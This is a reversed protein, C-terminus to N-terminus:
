KFEGERVWVNLGIKITGDIPPNGRHETEPIMNGRKDKNFWFVAGGRRPRSKIGLKPFETEGKEDKGLTNCYVFFTAIRNGAESLMNEDSNSFYDVHTKFYESNGDYKVAMIGEIQGRKCSALYCIKKIFSEIPPSYTDPLGDKLIYSTQSTRYDSIVLEDKVVMNSREFGKENVLRLFELIEEDTALHKLKVIYPDEKLVEAKFNHPLRESKNIRKINNIPIDEYKVSKKRHPNKHSKKHSKRKDLKHKRDSKYGM